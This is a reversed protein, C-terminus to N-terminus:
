GLEIKEGDIRVMEDARVTAQRAHLQAHGSVRWRTSGARLEDTTDVWRCSERARQVLRGVTSVLSQAVLSLRGVGADLEGIRTRARQVNFQADVADFAIERASTRVQGAAELSIQAASVRLAGDRTELAAGGPLTLTGHEAQARTLVALVYPLTVAAVGPAAPLGACVLVLDGTEPELLCSEARLAREFPGSLFLWKGARGIVTAAHLGTGAAAPAPATGATSAQLSSISLTM